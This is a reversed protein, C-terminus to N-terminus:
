ERSRLVGGVITSSRLAPYSGTVYSPWWRKRPDIRFLFSSREVPRVSLAASYGNGRLPTGRNYKRRSFKSEDIEVIKNPGGIKQSSAQVYAVMTERCFQRWDSIITRSFNHERQIRSVPECRLIDYILFMVEQFALRSQQFCSGHRISKYRNCV